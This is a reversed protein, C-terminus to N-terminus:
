TFIDAADNAPSVYWSFLRPGASGKSDAPLVLTWRSDSFVARFSDM